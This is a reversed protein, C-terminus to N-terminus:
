VGASQEDGGSALFERMASHARALRREVAKPTIGLRTAIERARMNRYYRLFVVRRHSQCLRRLAAGLAAARDDSRDLRRPEEIWGMTRLMAAHHNAVVERRRMRTIMKNRVVAWVWWHYFREPPGDPDVAATMAESVDDVADERSVGRQMLWREYRERLAM